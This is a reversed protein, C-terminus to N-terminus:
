EKEREGAYEFMCARLSFRNIKDLVIEMHGYSNYRIKMVTFVEDEGIDFEERIAPAQNAELPHFAVYKKLKVKDGLVFEPHKLPDIM